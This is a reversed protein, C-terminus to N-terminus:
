NNIDCERKVFNRKNRIKHNVYPTNIHVKLIM